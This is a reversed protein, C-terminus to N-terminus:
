REAKIIRRCVYDKLFLNLWDKLIENVPQEIFDNKFQTNYKLKESIINRFEQETYMGNKIGLIEAKTRETDEYWIAASFDNFESARYRELFDLIRFAHMAEKTNFGHKEVLHRTGDTTKNLRSMRQFCGGTCSNWMYPLNMRALDERREVLEKLEGDIMLEKSFLIETFSINSKFLIRGFKRIDHVSYDEEKSLHDENLEVKDYLDNLNPVLFIKYDKDSEPTNLNYNHSGFLAKIAVHRGFDVEM